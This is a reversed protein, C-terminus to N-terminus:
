PGEGSGYGPHDWLNSCVNANILPWGLVAGEAPEEEKDAESEEKRM